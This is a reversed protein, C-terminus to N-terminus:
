ACLWGHQFCSLSWRLDRKFCSYIWFAALIFTLFSVLVFLRTFILFSAAFSANALASAVCFQGAAASDWDLEVVTRLVYGNSYILRAYLSCDNLVWIIWFSM